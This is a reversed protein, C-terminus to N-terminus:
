RILLLLILGAVTSQIINTVLFGGGGLGVRLSAGRM